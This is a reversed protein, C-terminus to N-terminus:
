FHTLLINLTSLKKSNIIIVEFLELKVQSVRLMAQFALSPVGQFHGPDLKFHKFIKFRYQQFCEALLYVDTIEYLEMYDVM